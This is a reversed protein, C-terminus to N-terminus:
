PKQGALAKTSPWFITIDGGPRLVDAKGPEFRYDDQHLPPFRASDMRIYVPEEYDLAFTFLQEADLLDSPALILINGFGPMISLDDIAHHAGGLAVLNVGGDVAKILADVM